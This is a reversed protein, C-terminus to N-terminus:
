VQVIKDVGEPLTKQKEVCAEIFRLPLKLEVESADKEELLTKSQELYTEKFIKWLKVDELRGGVGGEGGNEAARRPRPYYPDNEFFAHVLYSVLGERKEETDFEKLKFMNCLNFDLLWMDALTVNTRINEEDRGRTQPQRCISRHRGGGLVFEVDYGDTGAAWHMEALTEAMMTAYHDVPLELELMQDLHLNYNRLGFNASEIITGDSRRPRRRGLYVRAICDRNVPNASVASQQAPPCYLQILASRVATPLPPIRETFLAPAPLIFASSSPGTKSTSKKSDPFRRLNRKWWLHPAEAVTTTSSAEPDGDFRGLDPREAAADYPFISFVGPLQVRSERLSETNVTCTDNRSDRGRFVEAIRMHVDYDNQLADGFSPRAIKFVTADPQDPEIFVLGCQGFGIKWLTKGLHDRPYQEEFDDTTLRLSLAEKLIDRPTRTDEMIGIQATLKQSVLSDQSLISPPPLLQHPPM